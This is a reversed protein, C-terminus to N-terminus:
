LNNLLHGQYYIDTINEYSNLGFDLYIPYKISPIIEIEDRSYIKQYYYEEHFENKDSWSFSKQLVKYSILDVKKSHIYINFDSKNLHLLYSDYNSVEVNLSLCLSLVNIEDDIKTETTQQKIFQKTGLRQKDIYKSSVSNDYKFDHYYSNSFEVRAYLNFIDELLYYEDTSSDHSATYCKINNNLYKIIFDSSPVEDFNFILNVEFDNSVSNFYFINSELNKYSNVYSINKTKEDIQEEEMNVLLFGTPKYTFDDINLEFDSINLELSINSSTTVFSLTLFYCYEDNSWKITGEKNTITYAQLAKQKNNSVNLYEYIKSEDISLKTNTNSCGFFILASSIIFMEKFVQKM